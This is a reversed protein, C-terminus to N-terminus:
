LVLIEKRRTVKFMLFNYQTTYPYVMYILAFCRLITMDYVYLIHKSAGDMDLVVIGDATLTKVLPLSNLPLSNRPVGVM